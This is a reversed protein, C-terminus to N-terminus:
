EIKIDGRVFKDYQKIQESLFGLKGEFKIAKQPCVLYCYLCHICGREADGVQLPLNLGM